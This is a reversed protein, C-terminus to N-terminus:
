QRRVGRQSPQRDKRLKRPTGDLTYWRFFAAAFREFDLRHAEQSAAAEVPDCIATFRVGTEHEITAIESRMHDPWSDTM